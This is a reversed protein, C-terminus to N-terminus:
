IPRLHVWLSGPPDWTPNKIIKPLNQTEKQPSNQLVKQCKRSNSSDFLMTPNCARNKIQINASKHHGFREFVYYISHNENSKM